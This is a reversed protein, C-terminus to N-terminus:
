VVREILRFPMYTYKTKLKKNNRLIRQLIETEIISDSLATHDEEFLGDQDTIYNYVIEANSKINGYATEELYYTQFTKQSCLTQCAMTWIDLIELNANAIYRNFFQEKDPRWKGSKTQAFLMKFKNPYILETTEMFASLDFGINYACAFKVNYTKIDEQLQKVIEAFPVISIKKDNLMQLYLPMKSYYYAKKMEDIDTFIEQVLFNRKKVIENKTAITYGIDYIHKILDGNEEEGATETDFILYYNKRRDIKM